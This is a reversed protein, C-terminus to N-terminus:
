KKDKKTPKKIKKVDKKSSEKKIKKETKKATEPKSAKLEKKQIVKKGEDKKKNASDIVHLNSLHISKEINVIGGKNEKTPKQHKKVINLGKVIARSQSKFLQIVEGTKGREDGALLKVTDGKKIKLKM